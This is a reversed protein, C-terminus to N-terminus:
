TDWVHCVHVYMVYYFCIHDCIQIHGCIYIIYQIVEIYMCTAVCVYMFNVYYTHLTDHLICIVLWRCNILKYSNFMHTGETCIYRVYAMYRVYTMYMYDHTGLHVHIDFTGKEVNCTSCMYM